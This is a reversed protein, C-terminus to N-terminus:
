VARVLIQARIALIEASVNDPKIFRQRVDFLEQLKSPYEDEVIETRPKGRVAKVKRRPRWVEGSM